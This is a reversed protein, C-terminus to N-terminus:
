KKLKALSEYYRAISQRYGDPVRESGGADMRDAAVARGLRDSVNAEYREMALDIDKRLTEWRSYDQKFAETGPASRSFEHTEPTSMGQGSQPAGQLRGLSDRARQLERAYENRLRQLEGAQGSGGSGQRGQRGQRADQGPQGQGTQGRASEQERAEADRVQQELTNLRDRMIRTQDLQEALGQTEAGRAGLASAARDVAGAIEQETQAQRAAAQGDGATDRMGKASERMRRAVQERDLITAAERARAAPDTAGGGPQAGLARASRQLEDVREALM